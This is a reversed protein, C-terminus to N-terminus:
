IQVLASRNAIPDFKLSHQDYCVIMENFCKFIERAFHRSNKLDYKAIDVVAHETCGYDLVYMYVMWM